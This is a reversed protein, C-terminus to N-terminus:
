DETGLEELSWQEHWELLPLGHQFRLPLWVYRGDIPNDPAWRDALYIYADRRGAVPLIYTAQSDFSRAVQEGTGVCPTGVEEWPGWLSVAVAMRATNPAWGTCDSTILFYRGEHKMLAPAEHFRGPFLRIYRGATGLYDPSLLSVHLTGNDESAYILYAQGDEDQFLTMDRSMQGGEFDRRFILQKPYYPRPGGPLDLASLHAAEEASLPRCLEVSVNLPWVGADPRFSRLFRFPGTVSTSEAVGLRAGAYAVGKPELHFWLVFRGTSPCHLVKPRELICGRELDGSAEVSLVIGEDRWRVLDASSYAHVGVQATNGLEGAIKHEGYWYYRSNWYLMGAGHANIPVGREDNWLQGPRFSSAERTM